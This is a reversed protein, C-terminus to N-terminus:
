GTLGVIKSEFDLTGSEDVVLVVNHHGTYRDVTASHNAGCVKTMDDGGFDMGLHKEVGRLVICGSSGYSTSVTGHVRYGSGERTVTLDAAGSTARDGTSVGLHIYQPGSALAPAAAALTIGVATATLLRIRM